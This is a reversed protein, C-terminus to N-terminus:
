TRNHTADSAFACILPLVKGDVVQQLGQKALQRQFIKEEVTGTALLRYTFCRKKQGDRWCRAAAQADQVHFHSPNTPFTQQAYDCFSQFCKGSSSEL